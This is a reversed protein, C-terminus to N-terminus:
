RSSRRHNSGPQRSVTPELPAVHCRVAITRRVNLGHIVVETRRRRGGPTRGRVAAFAALVAVVAEAVASLSKSFFWIPEYMSPIPGIAPVQFYRYVVVAVLGALGVGAAVSFAIRSRRVLVFGATLAPKPGSCAERESGPRSPLSITM